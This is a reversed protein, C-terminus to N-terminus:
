RAPRLVDISPFPERKGRTRLLENVNHWVSLWYRSEGDWRALATGLRYPTSEELWAQRYDERLGTCTDTLDALMGHDQANMQIGIYLRVLDVDPNKKLQRFYGAWEVAYLSKMGLYDFLRAAMVLRNLTPEEPALRRARLLHDLADEALLRAKRLGEQNKELRALHAPELPERWFGHQPTNHLINQVM